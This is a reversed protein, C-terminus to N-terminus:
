IFGLTLSHLGADWLYRDGYLTYLLLLIHSILLWAGGMNIHRRFYLYRRWDRESM